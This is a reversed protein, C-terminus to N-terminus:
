GAVERLSITLDELIPNALVRRGIERVQAEADARSAAEVILTIYKGIRVDGVNPYGLNSLAGEVTTGQPDLVGSKLTVQVEAQFRM